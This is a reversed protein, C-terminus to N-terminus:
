NSECLGRLNITAATAVGNRSMSRDEIDLGSGKTVGKRRDM